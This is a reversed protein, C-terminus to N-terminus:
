PSHQFRRHLQVCEASKRQVPDSLARNGKTSFFRNKAKEWDIDVIGM